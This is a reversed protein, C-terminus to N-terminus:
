QRRGLVNIVRDEKYHGLLDLREGDNVKVMKPRTGGLSEFIGIVGYDVCFGDHRMGLTCSSSRSPTQLCICAIDGDLLSNKEEFEDRIKHMM